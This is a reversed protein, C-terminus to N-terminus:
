QASEDSDDVVVAEGFGPHLQRARLRRDGLVHLTLRNWFCPRCFCSV